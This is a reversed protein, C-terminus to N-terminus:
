LDFLAAVRLTRPAGPFLYGGALPTADRWYFTDAVNDVNVRLTLHRAAHAAGFGFVHYAPVKLTNANDFFKRAAYQWEASLTLPGIAYDLTSVSKFSPVNAIRRGDLSADGTGSQRSRVGMMSVQWRLAGADGHSSVDIGTHTRKGRSVFVNAADTYELAQSIRFLAADIRAPGLRGRLGWELQSSASPALTAYENATLFPAIGGHELTRAWSAHTHWDDSLTQVLALSPLTHVAEFGADRRVKTRRLGAHL